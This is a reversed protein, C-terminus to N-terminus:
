SPLGNKRRCWPLPAQLLGGCFLSPHCHLYHYRAVPWLSYRAPFLFDLFPQRLLDLFQFRAVADGPHGLTGVLNIRLDSIFLTNRKNTSPRILALKMRNLLLIVVIRFHVMNGEVLELWAAIGGTVLPHHVVAVDDKGYPVSVRDAASVVRNLVGLLLVLV